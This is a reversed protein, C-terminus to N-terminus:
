YPQVAGNFRIFNNESPYLIPILMDIIFEIVLASPELKYALQRSKHLVTHQLYVSCSCDQYFGKTSLESRSAKFMKM